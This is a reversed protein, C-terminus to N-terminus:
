ETGPAHGAHAYLVPGARICATSDQDAVCLGAGQTGWDQPDLGKAQRLWWGAPWACQRGEGVRHKERGPVAVRPGGFAEQM